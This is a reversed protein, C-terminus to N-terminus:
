TTKQRNIPPLSTITFFDAEYLNQFQKSAELSTMWLPNLLHSVRPICVSFIQVGFNPSVQRPSCFM